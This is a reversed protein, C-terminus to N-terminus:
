GLETIVEDIKKQYEEYARRGAEFGEIDRGIAALEAEARARLVAGDYGVEARCRADAVAVERERDSLPIIGTDTENGQADEPPSVVSAPPMEGPEDPLDIVGAPAMCTRWGVIAEQVEASAPVSEWGASEIDAFVREPPSGLRRGTREGCQVMADQVMADDIASTIEVDDGVAVNRSSPLRFQPYGWQQAIEENFLRQGTREDDILTPESGPPVAPYDFVGQLCQRALLDRAYGDLPDRYEPVLAYVPSVTATSMDYGYRAAVEEATLAEDASGSSSDCGVAGAVMLVGLVTPMPRFWTPLRRDPENKEM